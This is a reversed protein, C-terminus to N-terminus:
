NNEDDYDEYKRQMILKHAKLSRSIPTNVAKYNCAKRRFLKELVSPMEFGNSILFDMFATTGYSNEIIDTEGYSEGQHELLYDPDMLPEDNVLKKWLAPKMYWSGYSIRDMTPKYPDLPKQLKREFNSEQISFRLEEVKSLRRCYKLDSPLLNIKRITSDVYRPKYECGIDFQKMFFHEDIDLYGLSNAWECFDYVAKPIFRYYFSDDSKPKKPKKERLVGHKRSGLFKPRNRDVKKKPHKDAVDPQDVSKRHDECFGLKKKLKQDPDLIEMVNLLLNEPIAEELPWFTLPHETLKAETREVFSRRAQQALSLSSVPKLEQGQKKKSKKPSRSVRHSITPLFGEKSGRLIMGECPPCGKRFDELGEKVFVWRRGELFTPFKLKEQKHKVLCKSPLRDKFWPKCTMGLPVPQLVQRPRNRPIWYESM